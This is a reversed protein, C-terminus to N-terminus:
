KTVNSVRNEEINGTVMNFVMNVIKNAEGYRNKHTIVELPAAMVSGEIKVQEDDNCVDSSEIYRNFIGLVTSAEQEQRGSYRLGELVPRRTEIKKLQKGGGGGTVTARNMQALAVVPIDLSQSLVRLQHVISAIRLEESKEDSVKVLEIYDVLIAGLRGWKKKVEASYTNIQDITVSPDTVLFLQHEVQQLVAIAKEIDPNPEPAGTKLYKAVDRYSYGGVKVTNTQRSTLLSVLKCFLQVQSVEYSFFIFPDTKYIKAWNMLLNCAFSTKGHRPRAGIVTLESPMISVTEDLGAYGTRKGEPINGAVSRVNLVDLSMPSEITKFVNLAAFDTQLKEVLEPVLVGEKGLEAQGQRLVNGVNQKVEEQLQRKRINDLVSSLAEPSLRLYAAATQLSEETEIPNSVHSVFKLYEELARDREIDSAVDLSQFLTQTKWIVGKRAKTLFEQWAQIGSHLVFEDPDLGNPLTPLVYSQIGVKALNDINRIMGEKGARDPDLCLIVRKIHLRQLTKLQEQTIFVGVVAVARKEGYLQLILADLFGEVVVVEKGIVQHLMYPTAKTGEGPLLYYKQEGEPVTGLCRGWMTWAEGARNRWLGILPHTEWKKSLLGFKKTEEQAIHNNKLMALMESLSTICGLGAQKIDEPDSFGRQQLYDLAKTDGMLKEHAWQFITELIYAKRQETQYKDYEEPSTNKPLVVRALDALALLTEQNSFKHKEQVYDWISVRYICNNLRNCVLFIGTHYIYASKKGCGPCTCILYQGKNQPNLEQFVAIRDLQPYIEYELLESVTAM